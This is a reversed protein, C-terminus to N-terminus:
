SEHSIRSAQSDDSDNAWLGTTELWERGARAVEPSYWYGSSTTSGRAEWSAPVRCRNDRKNGVVVKHPGVWPGRLVIWREQFGSAAVRGETQEPSENPWSESISHPFLSVIKSGCLSTVRGGVPSGVFPALGFVPLLNDYCLSSLGFHWSDMQHQEQNMVRTNMLQAIETLDNCSELGPSRMNVIWMLIVVIKVMKKRNNYCFGIDSKSLCFTLNGSNYLSTPFTASNRWFTPGSVVM